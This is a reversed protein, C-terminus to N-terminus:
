SEKKGHDVGKTLAENLVEYGKGKEFVLDETIGFRNKADWRADPKLHMLIRDTSFGRAEKKDGSVMVEHRLFIVADVYERWLARLDTNGSKSKFLKLEYRHYPVDVAPDNFEAAHSHCILVVNHGKERLANLSKQIEIFMNKVDVYAKSYGGSCLEISNKDQTKCIHDMILIECWDLSDIVITKPKMKYIQRLANMVDDYSKVDEFREVDLNYTGAEPGIFVPNPFESALTTKGVGDRGHILILHPLVRAGKTLKM